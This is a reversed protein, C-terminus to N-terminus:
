IKRAAALWDEDAPLQDCSCESKAWSNSWLLSQSLIKLLVPEPKIGLLIKVQHKTKNNNQFSDDQAPTYQSAYRYNRVNRLRAQCRRLNLRQRELLKKMDVPRGDSSSLM